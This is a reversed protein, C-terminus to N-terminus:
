CLWGDDRVATGAIRGRQQWVPDRNGCYREQRICYGRQVRLNDDNGCRHGGTRWDGTFGASIIVIVFIGIKKIKEIKIKKEEDRGKGKGLDEGRRRQAENSFIGIKYKKVLGSGVQWSM